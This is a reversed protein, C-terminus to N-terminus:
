EYMWEELGRRQDGYDYTVEHGQPIDMISIFVLRTQGDFNVLRPKCNGNQKSHNLWAGTNEEMSIKQGNANAYGDFYEGHALSFMTPVKGSNSYIQERKKAEHWNLLQGLYECIVVGCPIHCMAMAGFGKSQSIFIRQVLQDHSEMNKRLFRFIQEDMINEDSGTASRPARALKVYYGRKGHSNEKWGYMLAKKKLALFFRRKGRGLSLLIQDRTKSQLFAVYDRFLDECSTVHNSTSILLCFHELFPTITRNSKPCLSTNRLSNSSAM